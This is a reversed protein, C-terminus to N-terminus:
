NRTEHQSLVKKAPVSYNIVLEDGDIRMNHKSFETAARADGLSKVVYETACTVLMMLGRHTAQVGALEIAGNGSKAISRALAAITGVMLQMDASVPRDQLAPSVQDNTAITM